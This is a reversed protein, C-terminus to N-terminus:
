EYESRPIVELVEGTALIDDGIPIEFRNGVKLEDAITTGDMICIKCIAQQEFDLENVTLEFLSASMDVNNLRLIFRSFDVLKIQWTLKTPKNRTLSVKMFIETGIM